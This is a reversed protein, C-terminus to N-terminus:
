EEECASLLNGLSDYRLTMHFQRKERALLKKLFIRDGDWLSLSLIQDEPIWALTGEDCEKVEGAFDTCTYLDITESYNQFEGNGEYLFLLTGRLEVHDAKLGTEESIERIVCERSTEGNEIKGGIGIWKGENVDHAKRNRLMMLWSGDRIIYCCTTRRM